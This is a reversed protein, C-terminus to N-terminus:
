YVQLSYYFCVQETYWTCTMGLFVDRKIKYEQSAFLSQSISMHESVVEMAEILKLCSADEENAQEMLIRPLQQVNNTIDALILGIEKEKGLFDLYNRITRAIYIVDMKDKLLLLDSTYNKLHNASDYVNVKTLTLNVKSFQELIRTIESVFTCQTTNAELWTGDSGCVHYAKMNENVQCPIDVTYGAITKPWTYVGKNSNTVSIPCYKTINSIVVVFIARTQTATQNQFLLRCKWQGTHNRSLKSIYLSSDIVGGYKM